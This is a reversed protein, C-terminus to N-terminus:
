RETGPCDSFSTDAPALDLDLYQVANDTLEKAPILIPDWKTNFGPTSCTNLSPMYFYIQEQDSDEEEGGLGSSGGQRPKRNRQVPPGAPGPM